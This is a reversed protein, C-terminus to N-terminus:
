ERSYQLEIEVRVVEDIPKFKWKAVAETASANLRRNSSATIQIGSTNGDLNVDFAVKVLARPNDPMLRPQWEPPEQSVPILELNVPKALAVPEPLPAIPILVPAPAAVEVEVAPPAEPAPAITQAAPATTQAAPPNNDAAAPAEEAKARATAARAASPVTAAPKKAEVLKQDGQQKIIRLPGLARRKVEESPIYKDLFPTTIDGPAADPKPQPTQARSAGHLWGALLLAALMQFPLRRAITAGHSAAGLVGSKMM